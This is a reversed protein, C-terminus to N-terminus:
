RVLRLGPPKEAAVAVPGWNKAVLHDAEAAPVAESFYFGQALEAGRAALTQMQDATEVGEATISLGLNQALDIITDIIIMNQRSNGGGSVFSRDIKLRTFPIKSLLALSSYGTGFDDIALLVGLDRLALIRPLAVAQDRLLANETIELELRTPPLGTTRLIRAVVGPFAPDELQMPSVNVAVFPHPAPWSVATECAQRLVEEGIEAIKGIEEALGIFNDPMVLEGDERRWRALAEFGATQGTRLDVLPQYRCEIEKRPVASDLGRIRDTRTSFEAGLEENFWRVAIETARDARELAHGSNRLLGIATEFGPRGLAGGAQGRLRVYGNPMLVPELLKAITDRMIRQAAAPSSAPATALAFVHSAVRSVFMGSLAHLRDGILRVITADEATEADEMLRDLDLLKVQVVAVWRDAPAKTLVGDIDSLFKGQRSLGTVPDYRLLQSIKTEARVQEDIDLAVGVMRQPRGDTATVVNGRIHVWRYLGDECRVRYRVDYTQTGASAIAQALKRDAEDGDDPHFRDRLETLTLQYGPPLGLRRILEGSVYAVSEENGTLDLEWIGGGASTLALQLRQESELSTEYAALIGKWATRLLFYILLASASVFLWGKYTQLEQYNVYNEAVLSLAKDSLAVWLISVVAYIGAIILPVKPFLYNSRALLRSQKQRSHSM